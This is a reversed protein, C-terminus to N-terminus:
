PDALRDAAPAPRRPRDGPTPQRPPAGADMPPRGPPRSKAAGPRDPRPVGVGRALSGVHDAGRGTPFSIAHKQLLLQSVSQYVLANGAIQLIRLHFRIDAATFQMQLDAPMAQVGMDRFSRVAQRMQDALDALEAVDQATLRAAAKGVALTELEIRM